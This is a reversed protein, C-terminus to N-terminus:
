GVGAELLNLFRELCYILWKQEGTFENMDLGQFFEPRTPGSWGKLWIDVPRALAIKAVPPINPFLMRFVEQILYKPEGNRIRNLDLPMNMTLEEFPAIMRCGAAEIANEFMQVTGLGHVMKLFNIVDIGNGTRYKEYIESVSVSTKLIKAPDLFSYRKVFDEFIWERSLLKDLGGFTSDAGKGVFLNSVLDDTAACAAKHIGVEAPHLPSKKRKMLPDMLEIYDDWTVEVVKHVLGLKEAIYSARPTEDIAGEAVFRITFAHTGKPLLAAIIASDIGSSLLVGTHGHRQANCSIGEQITTRLAALIEVANAVKYKGESLPRPFKPIIGSLWEENDKAVYRFTLYSSTNYDSIKERM